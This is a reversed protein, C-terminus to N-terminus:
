EIEKLTNKMQHYWKDICEGLEKKAESIDSCRYIHYCGGKDINKTEKICLNCCTLKQLSRYVTSRDKNIKKALEDARMEGFKKLKNYVDIDANNLDFVCKIVDDCHINNCSKIFKMQKLIDSAQIFQNHM